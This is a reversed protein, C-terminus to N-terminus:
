KDEASNGKGKTAQKYIYIINYKTHSESHEIM